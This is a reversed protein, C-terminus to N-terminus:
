TLYPHLPSESRTQLSNPPISQTTANKSSCSPLCHSSTKMKIKLTMTTTTMRMRSMGMSELPKRPVQSIKRYHRFTGRRVRMRLQRRKRRDDGRVSGSEKKEVKMKRKRKVERKEKVPVNYGSFKPMVFDVPVLDLIPKTLNLGCWGEMLHDPFADYIKAENELPERAEGSSFATRAAVSM